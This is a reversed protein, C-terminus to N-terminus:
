GHHHKQMFVNVGELMIRIERLESVEDWEGHAAHNRRGGWTEVIDRYEQRSILDEKKLIDAYTKLGPKGEVTLGSEQIWTRLFEELTAGIVMVAAAPHVKKEQLLKQAQSLYDSLLDLEAEREPTIEKHLGSEVYEIFAELCKGVRAASNALDRGNQIDQSAKLFFTSTTGSFMRLFEIAQLKGVEMEGFTRKLSENIQTVIRKGHSILEDRTM